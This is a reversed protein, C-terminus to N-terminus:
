YPRAPRRRPPGTKQTQPRRPTQTLWGELRQDTACRPMPAQPVQGTEPLGWPSRRVSTGRLPNIDDQALPECRELTKRPLPAQLARRVEPPGRPLRRVGIDRRPNVGELALPESWELTKRPLPVRLARRAEPPDRLLRRVGIDRRPNIGELALPGHRELSGRAKCPVPANFAGCYLSRNERQLRAKKPTAAARSLTTPPTPLRVHGGAV